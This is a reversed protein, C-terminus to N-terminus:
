RWYVVNNHLDRWNVVNKHLSRESDSILALQNVNGLMAVQKFWPKIPLQKFKLPYPSPRFMSEGLCWEFLIAQVLSGCQWNNLTVISPDKSPVCGFIPTLFISIITKISFIIFRPYKREIMWSLKFNLLLVLLRSDSIM